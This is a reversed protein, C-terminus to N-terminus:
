AYRARYLKLPNCSQCSPDRGINIEIRRDPGLLILKQSSVKGALLELALASTQAAILGCMHTLMGTQQCSNSELERRRFCSFCGGVGQPHFSAIEGENHYVSAAIFPKALKKAREAVLIKTMLCDSSDIVLDCAAILSDMNNARIMDEYYNIKISAYRERIFEAVLFSKHYGINNPTFIFQRALNTAEVRDGDIIDLRELGLAALNIALPCGLGGAGILLIKKEAINSFPINQAQLAQKVPELVSSLLPQCQCIGQDWSKSGDQYYECKWIALKQKLQDILWHVALFAEYRHAASASIYVAKDGVLAKGLVHVARVSLLKFRELAEQELEDFQSEALKQYAEYNLHSVALGHNSARVSGWFSVHGGADNHLSFEALSNLETQSHAFLLPMSWIM